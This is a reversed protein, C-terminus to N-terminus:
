SPMRHVRQVRVGLRSLLENPITEAAGAVAAADLGSGILVAECRPVAAPIATVDCLTQDMCVRGVIPASKGAILAHGRGGLARPFGDAYPDFVVTGARSELMFCSHGYWTLKM